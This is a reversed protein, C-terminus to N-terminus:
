IERLSACSIPTRTVVSGPHFRVETWSALREQLTDSLEFGLDLEQRAQEFLLAAGALTLRRGEAFSRGLGVGFAGTALGAAVMTAVAMSRRWRGFLDVFDEFRGQGFSARVAATGDGFRADGGLELGLDWALREAPLEMDVDAATIAAASAELSAM